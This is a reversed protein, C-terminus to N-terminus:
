QVQELVQQQVAPDNLNAESQFKLKFTKKHWVPTKYCIFHHKKMCAVDLWQGTTTNVVACSEMTNGSNDPQGQMWNLFKRYKHDSWKAWGKRYLGIWTKETLEPILNNESMNGVRVLDTHNLRCLEKARSM